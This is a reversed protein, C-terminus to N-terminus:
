QHVNSILLKHLTKTNTPFKQLGHCNLNVDHYKILCGQIVSEQLLNLNLFSIDFDFNNLISDLIHDLYWNFQCLQIQKKQWDRYVERWHPLRSVTIAQDLYCFIKEISSEANYWLDRSDIWLHDLTMDLYGIYSRDIKLYEFNLALLERFAWVTNEFKAASDGFYDNIWQQQIQNQHKTLDIDSIDQDSTPLLDRNQLFYWPDQDSEVCLILPHNRDSLTMCRAYDENIAHVDTGKQPAGYLSCGARANSRNGLFDQWSQYGACFNKKFRHANVGTNPNNVLKHYGIQENWVYDHGILWHYSWILFTVGVSWRSSFIPYIM